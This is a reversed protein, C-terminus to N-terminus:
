PILKKFYYGVFKAESVIQVLEWGGAGRDNMMAIVDKQPRGRKLVVVAYEFTTM